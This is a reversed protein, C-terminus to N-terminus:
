YDVIRVNVEYQLKRLLHAFIINVPNEMDFSSREFGILRNAMLGLGNSWEM